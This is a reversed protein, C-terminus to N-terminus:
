ENSVWVGLVNGSVLPVFSLWYSVGATFVPEAVSWRVTDPLSVTISEGATFQVAWLSSKGDAAPTFGEITLYTVADACHYEVNNDMTLTVAAGSVSVINPLNDKGPDGKTGTEGREGTDGKEGPKGPEGQPGQKGASPYASAEYAGEAADWLLWNGDAGPVPPHTSLDTMRREMETFATPITPWQADGSISKPLYLYIINTHKILDGQAGQLQFSYCGDFCLNDKNLVCGIGNDTFTLPLVDVNDEFQVLMKWDWGAPFDGVVELEVTLNDYQYGDLSRSTSTLVWNDFKIM